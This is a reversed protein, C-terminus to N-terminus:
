RKAIRWALQEIERAPARRPRCKACTGGALGLVHGAGPATKSTTTSIRHAGGGEAAPVGCHEIVDVVVRHVQSLSERM